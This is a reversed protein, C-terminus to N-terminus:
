VRTLYHKYIQLASFIPRGQSTTMDYKEKFQKKYFSKGKPNRKLDRLNYSYGYESIKRIPDLLVIPSEMM